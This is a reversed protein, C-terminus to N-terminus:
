IHTWNRRHKIHGILSAHVNFQKAIERATIGKSLQERISKVQDETLKSRPNKSGTVMEPHIHQRNQNLPMSKNRKKSVMDAINQPQTGLFLHEPNCCPPNDCTHLVNLESPDIGFHLFYAVRSAIYRKKKVQFYGYGDQVKRGTWRWCQETSLIHYNKHFRQIDQPTLEPLKLHEVPM